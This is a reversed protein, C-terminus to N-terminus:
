LAAGAVRRRGTTWGLPILLLVCAGFGILGLGVAEESGPGSTGASGGPTPSATAPRTKLDAGGQTAHAAAHAASLASTRAAAQGRAAAQLHRAAVRRASAEPASRSHRATTQATPVGSPSPTTTQVPATPTQATVPTPTPLVAATLSPLPATAAVAVPARRITPHTAPKESSLPPHTSAHTAGGTKTSGARPPATVAVSTKTPMVAPTTVASTTVAPTTVAPTTTGAPPMGAVPAAGTATPASAVTATTQTPSTPRLPGPTPTIGVEVLGSHTPCGGAPEPVINGPESALTQAQAATAMLPVFPIAPDGTGKCVPVLAGGPAASAAAATIAGGALLAVVGLVPVARRTSTVSRLV